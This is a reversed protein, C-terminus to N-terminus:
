PVLLLYETQTGASATVAGCSFLSGPSFGPRYRRQIRTPKTSLSLQDNPTEQSPQVSSCIRSDSSSSSHLSVCPDARVSGTSKQQPFVAAATRQPNSCSKTEILQIMIRHPKTIRHFDPVVTWQQTQCNGHTLSCATDAPNIVSQCSLTVTSAEM